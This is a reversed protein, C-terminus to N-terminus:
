ESRKKWDVFLHVLGDFFLYFFHWIVFMIFWLMTYCIIIDLIISDNISLNDILLNKIKGWITYNIKYNESIISDSVFEIIESQTYNHYENVNIYKSFEEINNPEKGSGFMQTLDYIQPYFEINYMINPSLCIEFNAQETAISTGFNYNVTSYNEMSCIISEGEFIIFSNENISDIPVKCNYNTLLYKHNEYVQINQSGIYYYSKPLGIIRVLGNEFKFDYDTNSEIKNELNVLQNFNLKNIYGNEFKIFSNDFMLKKSSLEKVYNGNSDYTFNNNVTISSSFCLLLLPLIFIFILEMILKLNKERM